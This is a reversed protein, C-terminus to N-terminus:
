PHSKLKRSIKRTLRNTNNTVNWIGFIPVLLFVVMTFTFPKKQEMTGGISGDIEIEGYKVVM